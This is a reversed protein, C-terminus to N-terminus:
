LFFFRAAPHGIALEVDGVRNGTRRALTEGFDDLELLLSLGPVFDRVVVIHAEASFFHFLHRLRLWAGTRSTHLASRRPLRRGVLRGTVLHLPRRSRWRPDPAAAIRANAPIGGRCPFPSKRHLAGGNKPAGAVAGLGPQACWRHAALPQAM